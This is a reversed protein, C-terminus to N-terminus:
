EKLKLVQADMIQNQNFCLLLQSKQLFTFIIMISPKLKNLHFCWVFQGGSGVNVDSLSERHSLQGFIMYLMQHWCTFIKIKYNGNYKSVCRIFDNHSLCEILQAFVYKGLNM